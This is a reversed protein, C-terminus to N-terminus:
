KQAGAVQTAVLRVDLPQGPKLVSRADGEPRAEVLFVLKSRNENSYIVPPTYEAQPSVFTVRAQMGAPCGDCGVGVREGVRLAALKGQPVYFRLKLADDPLLAMVPANAPVREGVRYLVDYVLAAVPATQRKQGERWDGQALTARAAQAQAEAAAIEDARAPSKAVALQAELERVRAADREENSRLEDLRNATVFGRAVLEVNRALTARSADLNARAQVLQQEVAAIEAPRKGKRLNAAQAQAQALQAAAEARSLVEVDADLRFLEAGAKVRAGRETGLAQLVGAAPASVYVLDAEAYGTFRDDPARNCAGLALAALAAALSTRLLPTNM